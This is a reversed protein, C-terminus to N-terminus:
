TVPIQITDGSTDWTGSENWTHGPPWNWLEAEPTLVIVTAVCHAANWERPVHKLDEIDEPQLAGLDYDDTTYILWWRAWREPETDFAITTDITRTLTPPSGPQIHFHTGNRYVLDVPFNSPAYYAYLQALLAYPGGRRRHDDLWRTLRSAYAADPEYPGRAIRRERGISPLSAFGGLGPFRSKYATWLADGLVDALLGLAYGLKENNGTALWPPSWLDRMRDRFTRARSITM